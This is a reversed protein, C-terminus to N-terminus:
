EEYWQINFNIDKSQGSVNQIRVLYTTNQKLNWETDARIESGVSQPGLGGPVLNICLISANTTSVTSPNLVVAATSINDSSRRMNVPIIETGGSYTCGEYLAMYSKGECVLAGTLHLEMSTTTIIYDFYSLNAINSLRCVRFTNGKHVEHHPYDISIDSGTVSDYIKSRTRVTCQINSNSEEFKGFEMDEINQM